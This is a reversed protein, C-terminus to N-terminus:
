TRKNKLAQADSEDWWKILYGTLATQAHKASTYLGSLKEPLSGKDVSIRYLANNYDVQKFTYKAGTPSYNNLLGDRKNPVIVKNADM